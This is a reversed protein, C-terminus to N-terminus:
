LNNKHKNIITKLQKIGRNIQVSVTNNSRDTLEAIESIDKNESYRLFLVEAYIEPLERILKMAAEGDLKEILSDTDDFGPDYGDEAMTELSDLKNDRRDKRRYEDIVANGAAKYLFARINDIKGNKSIYMWTRMFVDQLIDKAKERDSLKFVVFRFIEDSYLNYSRLFIEKPMEM